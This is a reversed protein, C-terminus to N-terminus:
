DKREFTRDMMAYALQKGKVHYWREMDICFPISMKLCGWMIALKSYGEMFNFSERWFWVFNRIFRVAIFKSSKLTKM